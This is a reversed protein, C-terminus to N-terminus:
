DHATFDQLFSGLVQATMTVPNVHVTRKFSFCLWNEIHGDVQQELAIGYLVWSFLIISFVIQLLVVPCLAPSCILSAPAWVKATELM